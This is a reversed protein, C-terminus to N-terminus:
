HTVVDATDPRSRLYEAAFSCLAVITRQTQRLDEVIGAMLEDARGNGRYPLLTEVHHVVVVEGQLSYNAYSRLPAEPDALDLLEFRGAPLHDRVVLQAQKADEPTQLTVLYLVPTQECNNWRPVERM